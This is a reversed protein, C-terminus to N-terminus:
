KTIYTTPDVPEGEVLVQFHLHAGREARAPGPDGIYAIVTGPEVLANLSLLVEGVGAYRTLMGHGHDVTVVRGDHPDEEMSVLRGAAAAVVHEGLEAEYDIGPHVRYDGFAEAYGFGYPRLVKRDGPIPKILELTFAMAPEDVDVDPKGNVETSGDAPTTQGAAPQNVTGTNAEPQGPPRRGDIMFRQYIMLSALMSLLVTLSLLATRREKPISQLWSGSQGRTPRM